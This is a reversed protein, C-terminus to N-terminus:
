QRVTSPRRVAANFRIYAQRHRADLQRPVISDDRLYRERQM